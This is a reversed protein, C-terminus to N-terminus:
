HQNLIVSAAEVVDEVSIAKLCAFEKKCNHALCKICGVEKHLFKDKPGVPGWRKPSLGVQNRGFISIVPTGVASAIHVPGSDNSIFLTCRKLLSALQSVSTKGVFNIVPIHMRKILDEALKTEKQAGVILVKFGYKQALKEALEAFREVPWVKSPCSAAPHIALIKDKPWLCQFKFMEEIKKESEEKIPMYLRKDEAKIGLFNLLGLNYELEHREGFQKTHTSKSTLLFGLKRNLGIRRPVGALFTILHVRNTPHLVLALDFKKKNLDKAFKISSIWTKHKTDKDYIIVQDLYPNGEIIERAYASVMMALFANPYRERIAKIVPTSLLVDGIRDTRVILIRKLDQPIKSIVKKELRDKVERFVDDVQVRSLCELTGFKCIAKECPRCFLEKKVVSFDQSWPAYKEDDTIGFIAVIPIDFYSAIHMVASDNCILLNTKKMLAALASLNTKGSLDLVQNKLENAIAQNLAIDGKDGVLIIKVSLENILKSILQVFKEKPWKKSDSRAGASVVVLRDDERINNEQLIKKMFEEDARAINFTKDVPKALENGLRLSKVRYLHRDKMHQIYRPIMLFPSTRFRTPLIAGLFSNRLDVILDFKERRLNNFLKLKQSYHVHKDYVILSDIHPNNEFLEKPRVGCIVSIKAQPFNRRLYDLVPLTLVVDGINSLTIFLIKNVM